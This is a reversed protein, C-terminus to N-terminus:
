LYMTVLQRMEYTTVCTEMAAALCMTLVHIAVRIPKFTNVEHIDNYTREGYLM